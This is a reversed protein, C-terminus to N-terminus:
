ICNKCIDAYQKQLYSKRFQMYKKGKWVEQINQETVKGMPHKIEKDYCCIPVRGDTSILITHWLRHCIKKTKTRLIIQANKDKPYRQYKKLSSMNSEANKVSYFQASKFSIINAGSEKMLKRYAEIEKENYRFVIMQAEILPSKSKLDKKLKSLTQIYEIVTEFSAGQRYKEYSAKKAGDVSIILKSLGSLILKTGTEKNLLTGNSSICVFLKKQRALSIKEALKDDLLPEGQFYLNLYFSKPHIQQLIEKYLNMPMIAQERHIEKNGAPCEPCHLNCIAATEISIGYPQNFVFPKKFIWSISISFLYSFLNVIRGLNLLSIIIRNEKM